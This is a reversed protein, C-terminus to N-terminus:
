QCVKSEALAVDSDPDIKIWKDPMNQFGLDTEFWLENYTHYKCDIKYSAIESGAGLSGDDNRYLPVWEGNIETFARGIYVRIITGDRRISDLDIVATVSEIGAGEGIHYTGIFEWREPKQAPTPPDPPVNSVSLLTMAAALLATTRM